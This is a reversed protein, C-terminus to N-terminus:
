EDEEEEGEEGEEGEEEDEDYDNDDDSYDEIYEENEDDDFNVTAKKEKKEKKTNNDKNVKKKKIKDREIYGKFKAKEYADKIIELNTKNKGFDSELYEFLQKYTKIENLKTKMKKIFNDVDLYVGYNKELQEMFENEDITKKAIFTILLLKNGIQSDFAYKLFENKIEDNIKDSNYLLKKIKLIREKKPAIKKKIYIDSLGFCEYLEEQDILVNIIKRKKNAELSEFVENFNQDMNEMIKKKNNKSNNKKKSLLGIIDSEDVKNIIEIIKDYLKKKNLLEIFKANDKIKLYGSKLSSKKLENIKDSIGMEEETLIIKNLIKDGRGENFFMWFIQRLLFEEYLSNWMKKLYKNNIKKHCFFLLVLFNGIDPIIKKKINYKCRHLMNMKNNLYKIYENEYENCLKKFLLIYHFYCMIFASSIISQGNFMGIIMKNLIIPLIEFIQETQFDHKKIGLPGYKIVSLANLITTKNKSYHKEDIYIPMWYNYFQNNASKFKTDFYFDLKEEQKQIQAIYGDYTLLEPIPFLEIKEKGKGKKQIIPYGLLIEPDDIYNLKLMFCTLNEKIQQIRVDEKKKNIDIIENEQKKIHMEPFPNKWTHKIKRIDNGEEIEFIREYNNMSQMLEEIKDKNPLHEKPLDPDGIFNQVQLLLSSISYSPNWGSREVNTNMFDNDLLDFCFKKFRLGTNDKTNDYFIHHHYQGDIAQGPYILIKPPKSPYNDSFTLLLQVCYGAYLGTMLRINVVYKMGDNDLPAIGIGEIPFQIIEKIDKNIRKMALVRGKM